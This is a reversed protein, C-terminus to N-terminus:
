IEEIIIEQVEEDDVLMETLDKEQKYLDYEDENFFYNIEFNGKKNIRNVRGIVQKETNKDIMNMVYINDSMQLNLGSGCYKMNMLLVDIKYNNYKTLISNITNSNGKLVRAKIQNKKLESEIFKFFNYNDSFLLCRKKQKIDEKLKQIMYKIKLNETNSSVNEIKETYENEIEYYQLIDYLSRSNRINRDIIRDYDLIRVNYRDFITKIQSEQCSSFMSHIHLCNLCYGHESLCRRIYDLENKRSLVSNFKRKILYGIKEREKILLKMTRCDEEKCLRIFELNNTNEYYARTLSNQLERSCEYCYKKHDRIREMASNYDDVGYNLRSIDNTYLSYLLNLIYLFLVSSENEYVLNQFTYRLNATEKEYFYRLIYELKYVYSSANYYNGSSKILQEFLTQYDYSNIFKYFHQNKLKYFLKNIFNNRVVLYKKKPNKLNVKQDIYESNFTYTLKHLVDNYFRKGSKYESKFLNDIFGQNKPKLIREYTTTILWIFDSNIEPFNSLNITDAEDIFLRNIEYYNDVLLLFDKLKNVNCLVVDKNKLKEDLKLLDRKTKIFHATLTTNNEIENRWQQYLNHPVIILNKISKECERINGIDVDNKLTKYINNRSLLKKKSTNLIIDNPEVLYGAIISCTDADFTSNNYIDDFYYKKLTKFSNIDMSMIMGLVIYTKGSGVKNSLVGINYGFNIEYKRKLIKIKERIYLRDEQDLRGCYLEDAIRQINIDRLSLKMQGKEHELLKEITKVQYDYLTVNEFKNQNVIEKNRHTDIEIQNTM